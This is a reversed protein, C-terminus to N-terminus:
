YKLFLIDINRLIRWFTDFEKTKKRKEAMFKRMYERNYHLNKERHKLRYRRMVEATAM